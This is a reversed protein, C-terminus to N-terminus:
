VTGIQTYKQQFIAVAENQWKDFRTEYSEEIKGNKLFFNHTESNLRKIIFEFCNEEMKYVEVHTGDHLDFFLPFENNMYHSLPNSIPRSRICTLFLEM